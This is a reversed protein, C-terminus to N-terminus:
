KQAKLNRQSNILSLKSYIHIPVTNASRAKDVNRISNLSRSTLLFSCYLFAETNELLIFFATGSVFVHLLICNSPLNLLYIINSHCGFRTTFIALNVFFTELMRWQLGKLGEISICLLIVM